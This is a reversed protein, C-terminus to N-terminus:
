NALCCLLLECLTKVSFEYLVVLTAVSATVAAFAAAFAATFATAAVMLAAASIM